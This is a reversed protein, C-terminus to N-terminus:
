KKRLLYSIRGRGCKVRQYIFGYQRFLRRYGSPLYERDGMELDFDLCRYERFMKYREFSHHLLVDRLMLAISKIISKIGPITEGTIIVVGDSRLMRYIEKMLAGVNEAHHLAQSLIVLHYRNDEYGTEYFSGLTLRVKDSPINYHELVLPALNVLRNRSFELYDIIEVKDDFKSLLIPATWCIGGALECVSLCNKTDLSCSDIAKEIDGRLHSKELYDELRKYDGGSIDWCKGKEKDIDNWYDYSILETSAKYSEAVRIDYRQKM